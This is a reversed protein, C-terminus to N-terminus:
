ENYSNYVYSRPDVYMGGGRIVADRDHNLSQLLRWRAVARRAFLRIQFYQSGQLTMGFGHCYM